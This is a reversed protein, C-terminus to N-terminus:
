QAPGCVFAAEPHSELLTVQDQLKGPLWVDDADLFTVFAGEGMRIGLNRSASMGRNRHGDHEVYRVKEPFRTAYDRAIGTSRDNSGDDVLVLEWRDYTQGLVSEIAM